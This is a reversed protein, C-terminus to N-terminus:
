FAVRLGGKATGTRSQDSMVMGEISGFLSVNSSTHYGFGAGAVAGVV